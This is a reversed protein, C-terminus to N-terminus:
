NKIICACQLRLLVADSNTLYVREGETKTSCMGIISEENGCAEQYHVVYHILKMVIHVKGCNGKVIGSNNKRSRACPASANLSSASPRPSSPSSPGPSSAGTQKEQSTLQRLGGMRLGCNMYRQFQCTDSGLNSPM